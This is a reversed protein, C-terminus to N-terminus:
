FATVQSNALYESIQFIPRLFFTSLLKADNLELFPIFKANVETTKCIPLVSIELSVATSAGSNYPINYM